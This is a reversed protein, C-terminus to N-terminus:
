AFAASAECGANSRPRSTRRSQPTMSVGVSAIRGCWSSVANRHTVTISASGRQGCAHSRITTGACDVRHKRGATPRLRPRAVVRGEDVVNGGSVAAIGVGAVSLNQDRHGTALASRAEARFQTAGSTVPSSPARQEACDPDMDPGTVQGVGCAGPATVDGRQATRVVVPSAVGPRDPDERWPLGFPLQDPNSTRYTVARTQIANDDRNPRRTPASRGIPPCGNGAVTPLM